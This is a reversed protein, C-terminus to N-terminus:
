QMVRREAAEPALRGAPPNEPASRVETGFRVEPLFERNPITRAAPRNHFLGIGSHRLKERSNLESFEGKAWEEVIRNLISRADGGSRRTRMKDIVSTARKSAYYDFEARSAAASGSRKM